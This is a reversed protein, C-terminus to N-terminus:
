KILRRKEELRKQKIENYMKGDIMLSLIKRYIYLEEEKKEALKNKDAEMYDNVKKELEKIKNEIIQFEKEEM